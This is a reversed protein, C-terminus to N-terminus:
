NAIEENRKEKLYRIVKKEYEIAETYAEKKISLVRKLYASALVIRSRWIANIYGVTEHQLQSFRVLREEVNTTVKKTSQGGLHIIEAIPCYMTKYHLKSSRFGFEPEEGYFILRENLGGIELFEKSRVMMCAGSVWGVRRIVNKNKIPLGYIKFVKRFVFEPIFKYIKFCMCFVELMGFTPM